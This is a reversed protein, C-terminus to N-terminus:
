KKVRNWCRESEVRMGLNGYTNALNMWTKIEDPDLKSSTEYSVRALSFQGLKFYANGLFRWVKADSSNVHIAKLYAEVAEALLGKSKLDHGREVWQTIAKHETSESLPLM